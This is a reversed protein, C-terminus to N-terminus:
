GAWGRQEIELMKRGKQEMEEKRELALQEQWEREWGRGWRQEQEQEREPRGLQMIQRTLQQQRRRWRRSDEQEEMEQYFRLFREQSNIATEIDLRHAGPNCVSCEYEEPVQGPGIAMCVGHQQEGCKDCSITFGDDHQYSCICKIKEHTDPLLIPQDEVPQKSDSYSEYSSESRLHKGAGESSNDAKESKSESSGEGLHPLAFLAIEQLHLGLHKELTQLTSSIGCLPCVIDM